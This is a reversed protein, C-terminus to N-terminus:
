DKGPPPDLEDLDRLTESVSKVRSIESGSKRPAAPASVQGWGIKLDTGIGKPLNLDCALVMRVNGPSIEELSVTFSGKAYRVILEGAHMAQDKPYQTVVSDSM